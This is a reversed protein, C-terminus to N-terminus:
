KLRGSVLFISIKINKLDFFIPTGINPIKPYIPYKTYQIYLQYQGNFTLKYNIQLNKIKAGKGQCKLHCFYVIATVMLEM